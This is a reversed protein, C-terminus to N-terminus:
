YVTIFTVVNPRLILVTRMKVRLLTYLRYPRDAFFYAKLTFRTLKRHDEDSGRM